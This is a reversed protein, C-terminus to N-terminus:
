DVSRRMAPQTILHSCLGVGGLQVQAVGPTAMPRDVDTVPQVFGLGPIHQSLERMLQTVEESDDPAGRMNQFGARDLVHRVVFRSQQDVALDYMHRADNIVKEVDGM